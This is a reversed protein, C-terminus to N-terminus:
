NSLHSIDGYWDNVYLTCNDSYYVLNIDLKQVNHITYVAIVILTLTIRISLWCGGFVYYALSQRKASIVLREEKGIVALLLCSIQIARLLQSSNWSVWNCGGGTANISGETIRVVRLMIHEIGFVYTTRLPLSLSLSIPGHQTKATPM